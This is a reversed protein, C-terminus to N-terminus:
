ELDGKTWHQRIWKKARYLRTEVNKVELGHEEAIQKYSKDDLYFAQIIGRYNAPIQKMRERFESRRLREMADAEASPATWDAQEPEPFETLTERKRQLKRKKDIAKNVAIRTLWTKFGQGRYQSLSLYVRVFAEQAADEADKPHRLVSYTLQYVYGAYKDALLRFAERDGARIRRIVEEDQFDQIAEGEKGYIYISSPKSRNGKL